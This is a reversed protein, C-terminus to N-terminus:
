IIMYQTGNSTIRSKAYQSSIVLTSAGDINANGTITVSNASVDTKKVVVEYNTFTSASPLTITINGATADVYLVVVNNNVYDALLLTYNATKSLTNNLKNVNLYEKTVVAKGTTEGSILTNTVSPLTALGNKLITLANSRAGPGQGNGLNYLRDTAQWNSASLPTYDTSFVGGVWEGYARARNSEGGSISSSIGSAINATGGSVFAYNLTAQNNDGGIVASLSGSATNAYGGGVVTFQNSAINDAGGGISSFQGSATNNAGSTFAYQGTAGKTGSASTSTSLDVSALGIAGYNAAVRNSIVYGIGGGENLPSFAIDDIHAIIGTKNQLTYTRSATNANTFFSTFTNAVNRLGITGDLFTKVGTNTQASALIMDGGGIILDGSGLLTNGNVTKINTGSVLIDQKTALGDTVAKVSPYGIDDIVSLNVKKNTINEPTYGLISDITKNEWIGETTSGIVKNLTTGTIEVDHIEDISLGTNVSVFISGQTIHSSIVYGVVVKRSPSTPLINTLEGASATSLYLIDGDAWTEGQLSGTTNVGRILGSTTIFGEQNNNINETVLGITRNSNSITNAQALEVKMRQGQAGSSYVCQYDEELLNFGTKNVIRVVQEQGIQLTVNGGKLGLEITGDADNWRLKAVGSTQTPTQDFEIQGSKLQFEGLDVNTTAGIYPVYGALEQASIFPNTGDDGDNVFTSTNITDALHTADISNLKVDASISPTIDNYTFDITASDTLINGTADQSLEDTYQTVDGVFLFDGDTLETNFQTKTGSIGVISTEDGSNFGSLNNLKVKEAPSLLGANTIDALPITADNGTDSVVLGNIPSQTYSLNTAGGSGLDSIHAFPDAGTNTFDELDYNSAVFDPIDALTIYNVDNILESINDGSQLASNILLLLSSSVNIIKTTTGTISLNGDTNIIAEIIGGGGGTNDKLPYPIGTKDTVYLSFDLGGALKLAILSNPKLNSLSDTKYFYIPTTM